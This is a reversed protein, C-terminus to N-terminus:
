GRQVTPGSSFTDDADDEGAVGDTQFFRLQLKCTLQIQHSVMANALTARTDRERKGAIIADVTLAFGTFGLLVAKRVELEVVALDNFAYIQWYLPQGPKKTAVIEEKTCGAM